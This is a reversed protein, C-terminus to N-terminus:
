GAGILVGGVGMMLGFLLSRGSAVWAIIVLCVVGLRVEIPMNVLSGMPRWILSAMQAIMTAASLESLHQVNIANSQTFRNLLVGGVRWCSTCAFVLLCLLTFASGEVFPQIM